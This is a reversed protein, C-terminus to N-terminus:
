VQSAEAAAKCWRSETFNEFTFGFLLEMSMNQNKLCDNRLIPFPRGRPWRISTSQLEERLKRDQPHSSVPLAVKNVALRQPSAFGADRVAVNKSDM